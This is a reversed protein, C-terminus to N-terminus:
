RIIFAMESRYEVNRTGQEINKWWEVVRCDGPEAQHRRDRAERAFYSWEDFSDSRGAPIEYTLDVTM